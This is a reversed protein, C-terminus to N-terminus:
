QLTSSGSCREGVSSKSVERRRALLCSREWAESM